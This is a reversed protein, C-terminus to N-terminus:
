HAPVILQRYMLQQLRYMLQQLCTTAAKGHKGVLDKGLKDAFSRAASLNETLAQMVLLAGLVRRDGGKEGYVNFWSPLEALLDQLPATPTAHRARLM